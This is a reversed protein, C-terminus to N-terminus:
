RWLALVSIASIDSIDTERYPTTPLTPLGTSPKRLGAFSLDLIGHDSNRCVEVVGLALCRFICALNSAQPGPQLFVAAM